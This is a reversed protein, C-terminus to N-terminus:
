KAFCIFWIKMSSRTDFFPPLPILVIEKTSYSVLSIKCCFNLLSFVALHSYGAHAFLSLISLSILYILFLLLLIPPESSIAAIESSCTLSCLICPGFKGEIPLRYLSSTFVRPFLLCVLLTSSFKLVKSGQFCSCFMCSKEIYSYLTLHM